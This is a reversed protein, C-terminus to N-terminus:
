ADEEEDSLEPHVYVLRTYGVPVDGEKVNISQLCLDSYDCYGCTTRLVSRFWLGRNRCEILVKAQQWCGEQFEHLQDELLPIERRQFYYDPRDEIDQALREGFEAPTEQNTLLTLGKGGTQRPTGNRNMAREGTDTHVVIRFGQEDFKPIQRPAITPKRIVDYMVGVVDHGDHRASLGYLHIQPDIRLRLWYDSDPAINEGTTKRELVMLRGNWRVLGDRRGALHFTRSEAGTAPNVLPMEFTREVELYELPDDQYYWAYGLVLQTVIVREVEWEYPDAWPPPLDYDVTAIEAYEPVGQSLAALGQHVAGGMRLAKFRRERVLGLRYRYYFRRLCTRATQMATHTLIETM